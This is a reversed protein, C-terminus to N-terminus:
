FIILSYAVLELVINLGKKGFEKILYGVALNAILWFMFIWLRTIESEEDIEKQSKVTKM